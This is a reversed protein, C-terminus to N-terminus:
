LIRYSSWTAVIILERVQGNVPRLAARASRMEQASAALNCQAAGTSMRPSADSARPSHVLLWDEHLSTDNGPSGGRILRSSAFNPDTSCFIDAALQSAPPLLCLM